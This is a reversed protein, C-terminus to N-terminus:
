GKLEVVCGLPRRGTRLSPILRGRQFGFLDAVARINSEETLPAFRRALGQLLYALGTVPQPGRGDQLDIITGNALRTADLERAMARATGSLRLVVAPARRAEELDTALSWMVVDLVWYRFPYVSEM